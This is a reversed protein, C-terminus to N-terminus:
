PLYYARYFRQSFGNASSDQFVFPATNTQVSTWRVLDSTAQVVYKGGPVGTVQFSFQGRTNAVTTLTAATNQGVALSAQASTNTSLGSGSISPNNTPAVVTVTFRQRVTSNYRGGDNVTVTITATGSRNATPKFTLRATTAPSAYQIQIQPEPLLRPNSSSASVRLVQNELPSGSTIGTLTITQAATNEVVAVNAVPNLTPPQNPQVTVTFRRRVINNSRGGDNVTVTVTAVGIGNAMPRITLTATNAPSNYRITPAAVLRLNSSGAGVQLVQHETPSGSTIGTLTITQATTGQAVTVNAIPDLTPPQNVSPNAVVAVTFVRTTINNSAGGDDVTVTVTATGLANAVPAFTVTGASNPSNYNVTPAPIISADSSVASVSLTQNESPSGSSIGTLAVTQVGANQYITLNTIADLTPPLNVVPVPVVTVTFTQSALNNSASGNNVTVTVTATGLANAVPAFTLSGFNNGNTYSVTPVPIVTPDSSDAFVGVNQNGDMWGSSINTLSVTQVGANQYITLNAIADLTPPQNVAPVPNTVVTQPIAYTAENSFDSEVGSGDVTTAGFFYTAGESLGSITVNTTNGLTVTNTYTRSAGGYYVKYGAVSAIPSPSWTLTVSQDALASWRALLCVMGWLVLNRAFPKNWINNSQSSM